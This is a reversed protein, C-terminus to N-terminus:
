AAEGRRRGPDGRGGPKYPSTTVEYSGYYEPAGHTHTASIVINSVPIGTRQSV